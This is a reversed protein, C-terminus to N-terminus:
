TLTGSIVYETVSYVCQLTNSYQLTGKKERTVQSINLYHSAAYPRKYGEGPTKVYQCCEGVKLHCLFM